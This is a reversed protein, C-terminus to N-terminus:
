GPATRGHPCTSSNPSRSWGPATASTVAPRSRRRGPLRLSWPSPPGSRKLSRFASASVSGGPGARAAFGHTAGAADARVVLRPGGVTDPRAQAPLSALAMDLVTVHDATTNSGARGERVIGALAEGSSIDPRDLFCLLPHFGFTKKWTPTALEKDSHAVVITADIDLCLEGSLDPGGGAAWVATRAKARGARLAVLHEGSVRDLARWATATSAVPGFLSPQDRLLALDSISRAGDAIAVALDVLVQGPMHVTPASKYTDLLAEDWAEVLGTAVAMERLLETGAHSVVGAGDATVNMRVRRKSSKM